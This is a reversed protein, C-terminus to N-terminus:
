CIKQFHIEKSSAENGKLITIKKPCCENTKWPHRASSMHLRQQWLNNGDLGCLLRSVITPQKNLTQKLSNFILTGLSLISNDDDSDDLDDTRTDAADDADYVKDDDDEDDDDDDDDRDDHSWSRESEHTYSNDCCDHHDYHCDDYYDCESEFLIVVIEDEQFWANAAIRRSPTTIAQPSSCRPPSQLATCGYRCCTPSVSDGPPDPRLDLDHNRWHKKKLSRYFHKYYTFTWGFPILGVLIKRFM